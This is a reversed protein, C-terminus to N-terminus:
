FAVPKNIALANKTLRRLERMSSAVQRGDEVSLAAASLRAGKLRELENSLRGVDKVSLHDGTHTGSYLVKELLVPCAQGRKSSVVLLVSRLHSIFWTNGLHCGDCIMQQHKCPPLEMWQDHEDIKAPDKSRIEPCGNPAIFLLRPYPHPVTLRGTEVCNCFVTADLGM